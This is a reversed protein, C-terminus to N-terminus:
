QSRKKFVLLNAVFQQVVEERQNITECRIKVMGRDPKSKSHTIELIEGDVRLIDGPRTPAPWTVEAGAGIVGNAIKLEGNVLLKMTISATHWGSAVLEGFFSEKAAESDLHFSQPDFQSAFNIIQSEDILHTDSSFKQGVKLDDLYYKNNM